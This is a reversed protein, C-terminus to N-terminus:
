RALVLAEAECRAVRALWGAGNHAFGPLSRYFARRYASYGQIVVTANCHRAAALTLPGIVGDVTM